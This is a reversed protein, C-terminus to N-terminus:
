RSVVLWGGGSQRVKAALHLVGLAQQVDPHSMGSRRVIDDISRVSRPSMADTVRTLDDTRDGEEGTGIEFLTEAAGLGLLEMVDDASTVCRADYERLLRHCGASAASTVPGPVAGLARSLAAAHGATNLSGSRWGAEVVVTADALAAILRNRQLFRWKTPASGCPVESCVIGREAIADILRAHGSPYSRDAGGALIAITTGEVSLAARHAVGDIGYAAGSVVSIGRGALDAALDAAVHEGYGTAARAGVIAVLARTRAFTLPDGRFWLCLPMHDGLDDLAHPWLEDRGVLLRVNARAAREFAIGVAADTCRPRWRAQARVLEDSSISVDEAFEGLQAGQALRLAEVPGVVSILRGAVADGPEVICSWSALAYRSLADIDTDVRCGIQALAARARPAELTIM